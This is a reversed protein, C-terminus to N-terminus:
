RRVTVSATSANGSPDEARVSLTSSTAGSTPRKRGKPLSATTDWSYSLSAGYSVAMEKGDISLTMKVVRVNDTATAAIAVSGTVTAGSTPSAITVVPSVADNAITVAVTTSTSVNGLADRAKASLTASGDPYRSTDISFAFPAGVDTAIAAGNLLLDVSAVGSVDTASVDIATVGSLRAGSTPSVVSVQPGTTDIAVSQLAAIVARGADVRGYGYQMDFGAVGRDLATGFLARDLDAAGLRPNASLMLAYVGSVIPASFSTGSESAYGGGLATTVIGTGPAAIDVSAGYSSWSTLNDATDTASVVTYSASAPYSTQAATNGAAIVVVGGKSRMYEAATAVTSSGAGEYSINAVRAGHDAAWVIGSAMASLSALGDPRAIRVPMIRAAWAVGAVGIANNGVGAATGAVPTGHGYVDATDATNDYVNWGPVIQSALDPHAANVGTDLIAIIVGAGRATDWAVPAGIRPLHWESSLNPDNTTARPAVVVDLEAFKIRPNKSLAKAVAAENAQAPLEVIDVGIQKLRGIRRGGHAALEKDLGKDDVGGKAKVLVRGKLYTVAVEANVQAHVEGGTVLLVGGSGVLALTFVAARQLRMGMYVVAGHASREFWQKM